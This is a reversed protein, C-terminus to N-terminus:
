EVYGLDRLQSRMEETLRDSEATGVPQGETALWEEAYAEFERRVEPYEESVDTEEDPLRYLASRDEATLYRYESTRFASAVSAAYRSTDFQENHRLFREFDPPGRQSIAYERQDSRLDVGQFQETRGGAREVLTQMVDIHQVVGETSADLGDAVLPVHTLDDDLTFLHSLLGSDGLHEGHDATVVFVTEGLDLSSVFDYLRGVMEDTYAIEADYMAVLAEREEDTLPCGNAVLADTERHIRLATEAAERPSMSVHDTYRDLYPLPPYFPRHPENYHAYVFFPEDGSEFGRLWRKLVDNMLYPTAHKSADTTFGASHRRINVLWKVLTTPPVARYLSSSVVLSFRDFGRDLGLGPGVYPNRSLCATRYGREGLLEPVTDLAAPLYEATFKVQHRSPQTGTLISASSMPTGTSSAVCQDFAISESGAAIRELNPTTDRHYGAM